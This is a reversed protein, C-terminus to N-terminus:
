SVEHIVELASPARIPSALVAGAACVSAFVLSAAIGAVEWTEEPVVGEASVIAIYALTSGGALLAGIWAQWPGRAKARGNAGPPKSM